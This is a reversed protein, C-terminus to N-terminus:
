VVFLSSHYESLIARHPIQDLVNFNVISLYRLICMPFLGLLLCFELSSMLAKYHLTSDSELIFQCKYEDCIILNKYAWCWEFKKEYSNIHVRVLAICHNRQKTECYRSSDSNSFYILALLLGMTGPIISHHIPLVKEHSRCRHCNLFLTTICAFQAAVKICIYEVEIIALSDDMGLFM